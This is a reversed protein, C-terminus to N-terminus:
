DENASLHAGEGDLHLYRGDFMATHRLKGIDRVVLRKRELSVIGSARLAQLMRNTHVTTIGLADALDSQTAPMEFGDDEVLGVARLRLFLEMFLHAMRESADRRGVNVTWERQIAAQVLVDWCLARTIRPSAETLALIDDQVLEAAIVPSLTGVSHDMAELVFMPSDCLDGPLLFATIQRRGDALVRYRCAWGELIAFVTDPREGESMMPRRAEFSRRTALAGRLAENEAASLRTFCGIKRLLPHDGPKPGADPQRM